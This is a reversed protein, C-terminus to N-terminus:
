VHARGIKVKRVGHLSPVIRVRELYVTHRGQRAYVSDDITVGNVQLSPFPFSSFLNLGIDRIHIDGKFRENLFDNARATLEKKHTTYYLFAVALLILWLVLLGALIRVGYRLVKPM